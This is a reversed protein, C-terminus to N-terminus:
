INKFTVYFCFNSLDFILPKKLHTNEVKGVSFHKLPLKVLSECLSLSGHRNEQVPSPFLHTGKFDPSM